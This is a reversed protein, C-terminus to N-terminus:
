FFEKPFSKEFIEKLSQKFLNCGDSKHKDYYPVCDGNEKFHVFASDESIINDIFLTDHIMDYPFMQYVQESRVKYLYDYVTKQIEATCSNEAIFVSFLPHHIEIDMLIHGNLINEINAETYVYLISYLFKRARLLQCAEEVGDEYSIAFMINYLSNAEDLLSSTIEYPPCCFTFASDPFHEALDLVHQTNKTSYIVWTYIGMSEGQQLIEYYIESNQWYTSGDIEISVCWPINYAAEAEIKRITRSGKMCSHYGINLGFTLIHNSDVSSLLDPIMRYYASQENELMKKAIELFKLHFGGESFNIGIDILNRTSREPDNQMSKLAQKVVTEILVENM